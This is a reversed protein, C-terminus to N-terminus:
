LLNIGKNKGKRKLLKLDNKDDRKSEEEAKILEQEEAELEAELKETEIMEDVEKDTLEGGEREELEFDGDSMKKIDFTKLVKYTKGDRTIESAM